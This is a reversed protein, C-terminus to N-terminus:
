NRFNNRAREMPAMNDYLSTRHFGVHFALSHTHKSKINRDSQSEFIGFNSRKVGSKMIKPTDAQQALKRLHSIQSMDEKTVLIGSYHLLAEVIQLQGKNLAILLPKIGQIPKNVDVGPHKLLEQVVSVHGNQVAIGLPTIGATDPQNIVKSDLKELLLRVVNAHGKQAAKWLPTITRNGASLDINPHELLAKVVQWHGNQAAIWLPTISDKAQNVKINPHKLLLEVIDAYGNQAAIWLPSSNKFNDQNVDLGSHKLLVDVVDWHNQEAAVRLATTGNVDRHNIIAGIEQRALLIKVVNTHGNQAALWLATISNKNEKDLTNIEPHQLLIKTVTLYGQSAAIQLPTLGHPKSRQNIAKGALKKVLIQVVKIHNNQVAVSLPSYGFSDRYRSYPSHYLNNLSKENIKKLKKLLNDKQSHPVDSFLAISLSARGNTSFSDILPELLQKISSYDKLRSHNTLIWRKLQSDYFLHVAHNGSSILLGLSLSSKKISHLFEFLCNGQDYTGTQTAKICFLYTAPFKLPSEEQMLSEAKFFNSQTLFPGRIGLFKQMSRPEFHTWLQFFFPEITLLITEQPTLKEKAKARERAQNILSKLTGKELLALYDMREKFQTYQGLRRAREAMLALGQCVGEDCAPYNLEKMLEIVRAM